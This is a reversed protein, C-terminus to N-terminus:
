NLQWPSTMTGPASFSLPLEGEITLRPHAEIEAQLSSSAYFQELFLTNQIFVMRAEEPPRACGRMSVHLSKEDSPMTIPLSVRYMGFIGSTIANTYTSIWDIKEAVRATTINALGLGAVNGHTEETLDLVTIVAVDVNGFNEPQRPILLRSVINTDMGTGSINKGMERIVLVDIAPFPLSAMMDKADRLLAEERPGGIDSAPLFEIRATEDYANELPCVAGLLNTNEEYIRAAPALYKQFYGGGGAHMISAGYQKGLGIVSMKSPGSELRGRFDTHPKIRSVLLCHDAAMSEEGQYLVPGDPIQGIPKVDMTARIDCGMSEPTVGLEALMAKQGEAVAGGHSGMAPFVFPKFGGARLWDVTARVMEPIHAIGRSGAGVGVVADPKMLAKVGSEALVEHVRGAIDEVKCTDFTQHVKLLREPLPSPFDLDQIQELLQM